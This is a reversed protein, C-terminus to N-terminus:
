AWDVFLGVDGMFGKPFDMIKATMHYGKPQGYQKWILHFSRAKGQLTEPWNKESNNIARGGDTCFAAQFRMVEIEYDGKKAAELIKLELTEFEQELFDSHIFAHMRKDFLVRAALSEEDKKKEYKIISISAYRRLQEALVIRSIAPWNTTM